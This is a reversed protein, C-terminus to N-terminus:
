LKQGCEKCFGALATNQAGCEPCARGTETPVPDPAPAPVPAPVPSVVVPQGYGGGAVVTPGQSQHASGRATAAHGMEGLARNMVDVMRDSNEGFNKQMMDMFAQQDGLRAAHMKEMEDSGFKQKIAEAAALPDNAYLAVIQDADLAAARKMKELETLHQATDGDTMTLLAEASANTRNSLRIGEIEAEKDRDGHQIKQFGEERELKARDMQRKMGILDEMERVDRTHERGAWKDEHERKADDTNIEHAQKQSDKSLAHGLDADSLDHRHMQEAKERVISRIYERDERNNILEIKVDQMESARILGTKELEHVFAEVSDETSLINMREDSLLNRLHRETDIDLATETIKKTRIGRKEIIEKWDTEDCRVFRLREVFFGYSTLTPAVHEKVQEEIEEKVTHNGYLEDMTYKSLTAHAISQIDYTLDAELDSVLIRSKGKLLNDIFKKSDTNRLTLTGSIGVPISDATRVQDRNLSFELAIIGDDVLVVTARDDLNLPLKTELINGLSYHGPTLDGVYAGGQFLLARTGEAVAVTKKLIGRLDEVEFKTAFVGPKRKWERNRTFDEENSGVMKGLRSPRIDNGCGPCFKADAPIAAGCKNCTVDAAKTGCHPCFKADSDLTVGCRPCSKGHSGTDKQGQSPSENDNKKGFLDMIIGRQNQNSRHMGPCTDYASFSGPISFLANFRHERKCEDFM